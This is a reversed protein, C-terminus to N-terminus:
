RASGLSSQRTDVLSDIRQLGELAGLAIGVDGEGQVQSEDPNIRIVPARHQRSIRQSFQRVSPIATGAGLEVIVVKPANKKLAELWRVEQNQQIKNRADVWSWDNFMLINPRALGKCVPCLPAENVLQCTTNDVLPLFDRANWVGANCYAKCQLHHISGHCENIQNDPFGAKQFQGDINSTFVRCGLPMREGWQRLVEFGAHPVTKRYLALRHGYFGWGLLPTNEFTRPNAIDIFNIQAQALAPYAKWFGGDGRFDPLGSDVGMGAGAGIVLADAGAVLKAARKLKANMDVLKM